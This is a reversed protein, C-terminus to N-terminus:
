FVDKFIRFEMPTEIGLTPTLKSICPNMGECEWSHLHSEQTVSKARVKEHRQKPQSGLTLTTVLM